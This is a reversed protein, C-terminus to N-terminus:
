INVHKSGSDDSKAKVEKLKLMAKEKVQETTKMLCIQQVLPINVNDIKSLSTTYNDTQIMANQFYRKAEWPLSDFLLTQNHTDITSNSDDTLLDYLLYALYQIDYADSYLLLQILQKRQIYLTETLFEKTIQSIPKTKIINIQTEVSKFKNLLIDDCYLLLDKLM